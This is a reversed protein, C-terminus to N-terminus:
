TEMAKAQGLGFCDQDVAGFSCIKGATASQACKRDIEAAPLPPAFLFGQLEDCGIRNLFEEQEVNEIGEATVTL